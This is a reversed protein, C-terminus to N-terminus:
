PLPQLRVGGYAGGAIHGDKSKKLRIEELEGIAFEAVNQPREILLRQMLTQMIPDVEHAAYANMLAIDNRSIAPLSHVKRAHKPVTGMGGTGINTLPGSNLSAIPREFWLILQNLFGVIFMCNDGQFCKKQLKLQEQSLSSFNSKVSLAQAQIVAMVLMLRVMKASYHAYRIQHDRLGRKM